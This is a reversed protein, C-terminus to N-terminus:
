VSRLVEQEDTYVKGIYSDVSDVNFVFKEGMVGTENVTKLVVDLNVSRGFHKKIDNVVVRSNVFQRAFSEKPVVRGEVERRKEVFSWASEPEQYVFYVKVVYERKLVREINSKAKDFNSFTSDLVFNYKKKLIHNFVVDVGISAAGHYVEANDGTYGPIMAKIRDQDIHVFLADRVDDDGVLRSATETKGAGPSGAMFIAIGDSVPEANGCLGDIVVSKNSKIWQKAQEENMSEYQWLFM